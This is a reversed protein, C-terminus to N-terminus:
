YGRIHWQQEARVDRAISAAVLQCAHCSPLQFTRDGALIQAARGCRICTVYDTIWGGACFHRIAADVRAQGNADPLRHWLRVHLIDGDKTFTQEYLKWGLLM